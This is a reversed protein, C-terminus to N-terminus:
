LLLLLLAGVGLTALGIQLYRLWDEPGAVPLEEPIDPQGGTITTTPTPTPTPTTDPEECCNTQSPNDACASKFDPEGCYNNGNDATICILGTDCDFNNECGLEGCVISEPTPTPTPTPTPEECCSEVSPDEACAEEFEEIACYGEGDDATVCILDGECQDNTECPTFGCESPEPTPTPTPTPSPVTFTLTCSAQEIAAQPISQPATPAVPVQSIFQRQAILVGALGIAFFVLLGLVAWIVRAPSPKQPPIAREKTYRMAFEQEQPTRNTAPTPAQNAPPNQNTNEM